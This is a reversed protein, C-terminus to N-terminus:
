AQSRQVSLNDHHVHHALPLFDDHIDIHIPGWHGIYKMSCRLPRLETQLFGWNDADVYM